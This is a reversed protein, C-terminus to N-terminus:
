GWSMNNQCWKIVYKGMMDFEVNVFDGKKLNKFNTHEYTYPVITVTFGDGTSNFLTLSVGNLAVSGKEIFLDKYGQSIRFTFDWSGEKEVIKSCEAVTDVHGQVIHGDIRDQLTLSRELNIMDGTSSHGLSSKQLTEEVATVKYSQQNAEEVTLCVGNHALSQDPKLAKALPSDISFTKNTGHTEIERITGLSEIIGTFM